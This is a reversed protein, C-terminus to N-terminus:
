HRQAIKLFFLRSLPSFSHMLLTCVSARFRLLLVIRGAWRSGLWWFQLQLLPGGGWQLGCAARSCGAM